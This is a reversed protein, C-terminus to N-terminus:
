EGKPIRQVTPRRTPPLGAAKRIRDIHQRDYHSVREIASPGAGAQLAKVIADHLAKRKEEEANQADEHQDSAAKVEALASVKPDEEDAM